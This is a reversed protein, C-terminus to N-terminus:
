DIDDAGPDRDPQGYSHRSPCDDRHGHATSSIRVLHTCPGDPIGWRFRGIRLGSRQSM